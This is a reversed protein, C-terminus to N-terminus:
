TLNITLSPPFALKPLSANIRVQQTQTSPCLGSGEGGKKDSGKREPVKQNEAGECIVFLTQVVRPTYYLDLTQREGLLERRERHHLLLSCSLSPFHLLLSRWTSLHSPPRGLLPASPPFNLDPSGNLQSSLPGPKVRGTAPEPPGHTWSSSLPLKGNSFVTVRKFNDFNILFFVKRHDIFKYGM